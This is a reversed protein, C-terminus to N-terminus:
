AQDGTQYGSKGADASAEVGPTYAGVALQALEPVQEEALVKLNNQNGLLYPLIVDHFASKLSIPQAVYTGFRLSGPPNTYLFM